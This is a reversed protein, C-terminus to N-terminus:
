PLVWALILAALALSEILLSIGIRGIRRRLDSMPLKGERVANLARVTPVVLAILPLLGGIAYLGYALAPLGVFWLISSHYPKVNRRFPLRGEVYLASFAHYTIWTLSAMIVKNTLDGGMLIFWTLYTSAILATGSVNAIVSRGRGRIVETIFLALPVLPILLWVGLYPILAAYPATNILFLLYDRFGRRSILGLHARVLSIINLVALGTTLAIRIPNIRLRSMILLTTLSLVYNITLLSLAGTDM